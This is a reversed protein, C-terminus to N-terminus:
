VGVAVMSKVVVGAGVPVGSGVSVRSSGVAVWPFPPVLVGVSGGASRFVGLGVALLVDFEWVSVGVDNSVWGTAGVEEDVAIRVCGGVTVAVADGWAVSVGGSAGVGSPGTVGSSRSDPLGCPPKLAKM